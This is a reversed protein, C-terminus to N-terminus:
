IERVRMKTTRKPNTKPFSFKKSPKRSISDFKKPLSNAPLLKDWDIQYHKFAYAQFKQRFKRAAQMEMTSILKEIIQFGHMEAHFLAEDKAKLKKVTKPRFKQLIARYVLYCEMLMLQNVPAKKNNQFEKRLKTGRLEIEVRVVSRPSKIKKNTKDYMKIKIKDGRWEVTNVKFNNRYVAVSKKVDPHNAHEHCFLFKQPPASPFHWVLDVRTFHRLESIPKAIKKLISDIKAFAEDIKAQSAILRYNDDYVMRPLSVEVWQIISNKGGVRLDSDADLRFMFKGIPPDKLFEWDQYYRVTDIM